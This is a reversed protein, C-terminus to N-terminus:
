ALKFHRTEALLDRSLGELEQAAEQSRTVEAHNNEIMQVIREVHRAIDNSAATQERVCNVIDRVGTTSENLTDVSRALAEVVGAMHTRSNELYDLGCRIAANASESQASISATVTDIQTASQASKEALKRVEDAVVAFGRGQEGARAAEIAANLALLNTQEAIERVQRTMGSIADTSAIFARVTVAIEQVASGAHGLEVSLRGLDVNARETTEASRRAVQEVQAANQEIAGISVAMEEVSAAASTAAQQQSGSARTIAHASGAMQTASQSVKQASQQVLGLTRALDRNMSQLSKLLRGCEDDSVIEVRATLDGAAVAQSLSVARDLPRTVSRMVATTLWLGLTLSLMLMVGMQWSAQTLSRAANRQQEQALEQAMLVVQDIHKRHSEFTQDLQALVADLRAPDAARVAPVLARDVTEYYALAPASSAEVLQTRLGDPLDSAKWYTLRDMYEKRLQGLRAIHGDLQDRSARALRHAVLHTEVIYEPPPLVDAILVNAQGIKDFVPGGVRLDRLALTSTAAFALFGLTVVGLVLLFRVRISLHSLYTM